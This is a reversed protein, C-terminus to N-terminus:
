ADTFRSARRPPPPPPPRSRTVTSRSAHSEPTAAPQERKKTANSKFWQILESPTTFIKDRM